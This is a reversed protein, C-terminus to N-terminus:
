SSRIDVDGCSDRGVSESAPAPVMPPDCPIAGNPDTSSSGISRKGYFAIDVGFFYSHIKIYGTRIINELLIIVQRRKAANLVMNAFVFM